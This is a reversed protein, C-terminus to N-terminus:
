HRAHKVSRFRTIMVIRRKMDKGRQVMGIAHESHARASSSELLKILTQAYPVAAPSPDDMLAEWDRASEQEARLRFIAFGALPHCWWLSRLLILIGNLATDARKLHAPEHLFVHRLESSDLSQQV